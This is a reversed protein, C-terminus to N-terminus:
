LIKNEQKVRRFKYTGSPATRMEAGTVKHETQLHKAAAGEEMGAKTTYFHGCSLCRWGDAEESMLAKLAARQAEM